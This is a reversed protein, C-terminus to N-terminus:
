QSVKQQDSIFIWRRDPGIDHLLLDLFWEWSDKCESEVVAFALPFYQDNPDRAVACLLIGGFQTKLHCGDLGIFPRCGQLFGRKCGELCMYFRGFRPQIAGTPHELQMKCTNGPSVRRLEASFRYLLSYQRSADGEVMELAMKRAKWAKYRTIGTSFGIRIEEVVDNIKMKRSGRMKDVVKKAVWSSTASKNNFVRGCTHPAILTKIAFTQKGGVKSCLMVFPCQDKKKCVARVRDFDNKPFTIGRGTLTAHDKAAEKFQQLSTFEMGVRFKFEPRMDEPRFQLHRRDPENSDDSDGESMSNLDESEWGAEMDHDGHFGGIEEDVNQVAHVNSDEDTMKRLQENLLAEAVGVTNSQFGDDIGQTREEESDSFHVDLESDDSGSTPDGDLTNENNEENMVEEQVDNHGENMVEEQVDNNGENMVEEQVDNVPVEVEPGEFM